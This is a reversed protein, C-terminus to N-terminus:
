KAAARSQRREREPIPADRGTLEKYRARLRTLEAPDTVLVAPLDETLGSMVSV